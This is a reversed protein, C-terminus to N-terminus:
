PQTTETAPAEAVRQARCIRAYLGDASLLQGHTGKEIVVGRELVVVLDAHPFGALRHSCLVITARHEPPADPGFAHRLSGIIAAETTVDVASFPDDLVLLGPAHPAATAIARALGIRQRQGGSIRIGGEGIQTDLGHRFRSVDDELAAVRIARRLAGVDRGDNAPDFAVNQGLSGSFLAPDQPLYGIMTRRKGPPLKAIPSGDVQISGSEIPCVGVIARALATKGSGVPGTVAVLTGAPIDLCLSDLAPVAAAAHRVTVDRLSLSVPGSKEVTTAGDLRSGTVHGARFSAFRPEGDPPPAPALLPHLRGYAAAGSQLSNVLQPIRHGRNVFRLFLELYAVFTGVTMAGAVVRESGQWVVLLVGSIMLTTYIPQLGGRLRTLSLSAAAVKRSVSAIREVSASVRGFLRLVRVGALSEQIAATLTANAERARTTRHAVWRGAAHALIMAVPTPLLALVTLGPDFVLMAVVFSLSFLVTDWIEITFERVGVGLVEVDGVIRAMLDGVPTRQVDAMPWALVGRFADARVNARIRANATMLWWRKAIRPLETLLTGGVFALAALSVDATTASGREWALARDIARGLLIAPLVVATNMIIGAVSGLALQGAVQRFYWRMEWLYRIAM